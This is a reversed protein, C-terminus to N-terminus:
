STGPENKKRLAEQKLVHARVTEAHAADEQAMETQTNQILYILDQRTLPPNCYNRNEEEMATLISAPPMRRETMSRVTKIMHFNRDKKEIGSM